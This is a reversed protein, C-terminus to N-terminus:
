LVLFPQVLRNGANRALIQVNLVLLCYMELNLNCSQAVLLIMNCLQNM